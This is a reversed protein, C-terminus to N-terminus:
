KTEPAKKGRATDPRKRAGTGDATEKGSKPKPPMTLARRIAEDRRRAVDADSQSEPVSAVTPKDANAM